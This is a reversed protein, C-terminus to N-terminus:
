LNDKLNRPTVHTTVTTSTPLSNLDDDLILEVRILRVDPINVPDSLSPTTSAGDYDTDYYSFIPNAATNQVHNIVDTIVEPDDYALPNGSPVVVGRRLANNEVYYRIRERFGDNDTDAYFTFTSTGVASIPHAGLSSPSMSRAETAFTRLVKLGEFQHDLSASFIRNFVFTDALVRSAVLGVASLIFLTILLETMTFGRHHM